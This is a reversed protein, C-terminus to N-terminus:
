RHGAAHRRAPLRPRGLADADAAPEPGLDGHTGALGDAAGGRCSASRCPRSGTRWSRSSCSATAADRSAAGHAGAHAAPEPRLHGRRAPRRARGGPGARARFERGGDVQRSRGQGLRDGHSQARGAPAEAWAPRCPHRGRGHDRFRDARRRRAACLARALAEVLAERSRGIPFGCRVTVHWGNARATM